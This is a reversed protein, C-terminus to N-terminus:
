QVRRVETRQYTGVSAQYPDTLSIPLGDVTGTASAMWYANRGEVHYRVGGTLVTSNGHSEGHNENAGMLPVFVVSLRIRSSGPLCSVGAGALDVELVATGSAPGNNTVVELASPPIACHGNRSQGDSFLSGLFLFDVSAATQGHDDTVRAAQLSMTLGPNSLGAREVSTYLRTAGIGNGGGSTPPLALVATALCVLRLLGGRM